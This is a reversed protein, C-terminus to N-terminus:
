GHFAEATGRDTRFGDSYVAGHGTEVLRSDNVQRNNSLDHSTRPLEDGYALCFAMVLMATLGTLGYSTLEAMRAM